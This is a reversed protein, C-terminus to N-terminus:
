DSRAAPPEQDTPIGAVYRFLAVARNLYSAAHGRALPNADPSTRSLSYYTWVGPSGRELFYTSQLEGPAFMTLILKRVATVNETEIVLRGEDATLVRMRYVVEGSSRNDNQAIFLDRGSQMEAATFDARRREPDPGSLASAETVLPGWAQDSVSWYRIGPLTSIAGFRTLLYGIGGEHRFSGALAVLVDFGRSTWGTCAPPTWATALEGDSWVLLNPRAGVESYSPWPAGDCPPRPDSEADAASAGFPLLMMGALALATARSGSRRLPIFATHMPEDGVADPCSLRGNM